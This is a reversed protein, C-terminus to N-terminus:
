ISDIGNLKGNFNKDLTFSTISVLGGALLRWIGALGPDCAGLEGAAERALLFGSVGLDVADGLGDGLTLLAVKTPDWFGARPSSFWSGGPSTM